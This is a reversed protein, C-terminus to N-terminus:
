RRNHPPKLSHTVPNFTCGTNAKDPNAPLDHRICAIRDRTLEDVSCEPCGVRAKSLEDAVILDPCHVRPQESPLTILRSEGQVLKGCEHGAESM